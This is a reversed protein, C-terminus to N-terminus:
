RLRNTRVVALHFGMVGLSLKTSSDGHKASLGLALDEELSPLASSLKVEDNGSKLPAIALHAPFGIPPQESL